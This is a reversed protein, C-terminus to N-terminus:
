RSSVPWAISIFRAHRWRGCHVRWNAHHDKWYQSKIIVTNCALSRNFPLAVFPQSSPAGACERCVSCLKQILAALLPPPFGQGFRGVKMWGSSPTSRRGVTPGKDGARVREKKKGPRQCQLQFLYVGGGIDRFRCCSGRRGGRKRKRRVKDEHQQLHANNNWSSVSSLCIATSVACFELYQVTKKDNLAKKTTTTRDTM